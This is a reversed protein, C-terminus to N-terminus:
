WEAKVGITKAIEEIIAKETDDVEGDAEAVTMLIDMLDELQEEEGQIEAIERLVQRKGTRFSTEVMKHFRAIETNIESKFNSLAPITSIISELKDLEDDSCDGDVCAVLIAGGVIAEMYDRNEFKKVEAVAKKAKKGFGFFAM